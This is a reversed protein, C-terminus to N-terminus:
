RSRLEKYKDQISYLFDRYNWLRTKDGTQEYQQLATNAEILEDCCRLLYDFGRISNFNNSIETIQNKIAELSENMGILYCGERLMIKAINDIFSAIEKIDKSYSGFVSRLSNEDLYWNNIDRSIASMNSAMDHSVSYLKQIKEWAEHADVKERYDEYDGTYGCSHILTVGSLLTVLLKKM